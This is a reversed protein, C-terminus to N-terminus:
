CHRKKRSMTRASSLWSFQHLPTTLLPSFPSPPPLRKLSSFLKLFLNSFMTTTSPSDLRDSGDFIIKRLKGFRKFGFIVQHVFHSCLSSRSLGSFLHRGNLVLLSDRRAARCCACVPLLIVFVVPLCQQSTIKMNLSLMRCNSVRNASRTTEFIPIRSSRPM